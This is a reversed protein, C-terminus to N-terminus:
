HPPCKACMIHVPHDRKIYCLKFKTLTASLQIFIRLRVYIPIRLPRTFNPQFIGLRKPFIAVLREPSIKKSVSYVCIRAPTQQSMSVVSYAVHCKVDASTMRRTLNLVYHRGM